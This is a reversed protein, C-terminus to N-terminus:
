RLSGSSGPITIDGQLYLVAHGAIIVRDGHHECWLKGGRASLQEAVLNTKNLKDSWYPILTSHASGTVPDELVGLNPAFFRSVFDVEIGPATVIVASQGLSALGAPDVVLNRVQAENDLRLMLDRSLGAERVEVGLVASMQATVPIPAPPRAPFDMRYLDGQKTVTLRGSRTHFDMQALDPDVFNAIVYASGLTAHGCLDIEVEPTFWRLGYGDSQPTVFATESLNNEAAINQMTRADLETDVLCVGAPNGKFVETAFADVVYYKM